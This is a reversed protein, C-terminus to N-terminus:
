RCGEKRVASNCTCTLFLIEKSDRPIWTEKAIPLCHTHTLTRSSTSRESPHAPIGGEPFHMLSWVACSGGLWVGEKNSLSFFQYIINVFTFFRESACNEKTSHCFFLYWNCQRSFDPLIYNANSVKRISECPLMTPVLFWATLSTRHGSNGPSVRPQIHARLSIRKRAGALPTHLINPFIQASLQLHLFTSKKKKWFPPNKIKCKTLKSGGLWGGEGGKSGPSPECPCDPSNRSNKQIDIEDCTSSIYPGPSYM